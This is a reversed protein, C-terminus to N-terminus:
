HKAKSGPTVKPSASKVDEMSEDFRSKFKDYIDKQGKTLTEAMKMSHDFAKSVNDKASNAGKKMDKEDIKFMDFGKVWGKMDEMMTNVFQMQLQSLTKSVEAATKSAESIANMNKKYNEMVVEKDIGFNPMSFSSFPNQQQSM